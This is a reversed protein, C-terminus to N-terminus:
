ILTDDIFSLLATGICSDKSLLLSRLKKDYKGLHETKAHIPSNVVLSQGLPARGASPVTNLM